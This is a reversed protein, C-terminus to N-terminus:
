GAILMWCCPHGEKHRRAPHASVHAFLHCMAMLQSRSPIVRVKAGDGTDWIVGELAGSLEAEVPKIHILHSQNM